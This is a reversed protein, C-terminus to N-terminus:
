VAPLVSVWYRTRRQVRVPLTAAVSDLVHDTDALQFAGSIRLGAVEPACRLIGPRHRALEALFADLRMDDAYLVGRAWGAEALEGRHAAPESVGAADLLVREGAQVIRAGTGAAPTAEVRGDFVSLRTASEQEHVAFRTGLARMRGHTSRVIFPRAAPAPDPATQVLIEGHRLLVLRQMDDYRVEVASGSNLQVRTGDALTIERREGAATHFEVLGPRHQWALWGSGGLMAFLGVSRLVTRRGKNRPAEARTLVPVGLEAPVLGFRAKLREARQWAREHAPDAERWHRCAETDQASASGSHLWALWQAAQRIVAPDLPSDPAAM